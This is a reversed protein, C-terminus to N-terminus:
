TRVETKKQREIVDLWYEVPKGGVAGKVVCGVTFRTGDDIASAKFWLRKSRRNFVLHQGEYATM